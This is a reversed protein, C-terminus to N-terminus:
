GRSTLAASTLQRRIRSVVAEVLAAAREPQGETYRSVQMLLQDRCDLFEPNFHRLEPRCELLLELLVLYDLITSAQQASIGERGGSFWRRGGQGIAYVGRKLKQVVDADYQASLKRKVWDSDVHADLWFDTAWDGSSAFRPAPGHWHTENEVTATSDAPNM